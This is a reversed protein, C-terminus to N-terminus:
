PTVPPATVQFSGRRPAHLPHSCYARHRASKWQGACESLRIPGWRERVTIQPAVRPLDDSLITHDQRADPARRSRFHEDSLALSSHKTKPSTNVRFKSLALSPGTMLALWKCTM